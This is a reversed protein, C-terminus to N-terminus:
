LDKVADGLPQNIGLHDVEYDIQGVHVLNCLTKTKPHCQERLEKSVEAVGLLRTSRYVYCKKVLSNRVSSAHIPKIYYYLPAERLRTSTLRRGRVHGFYHLICSFRPRAHWPVALLYMLSLLLLLLRLCDRLTMKSASPRESYKIEKVAVDQSTLAAELRM